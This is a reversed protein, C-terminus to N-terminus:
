AVTNIFIQVYSEDVYTHIQAATLLSNFINLTNKRSSMSSNNILCLLCSQTWCGHPQHENYHFILVKFPNPLLISLGRNM